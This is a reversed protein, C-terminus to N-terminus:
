APAHHLYKLAPLAVLHRRHPLAVDADEAQRGACTELLQGDEGFADHRAAAGALAVEQREEGPHRLPPNDRGARARVRALRESDVRGFVERGDGSVERAMLGTGVSDTTM